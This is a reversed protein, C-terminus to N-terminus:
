PTVRRCVYRKTFKGNKIPWWPGRPDDAEHTMDSYRLVHAQAGARNDVIAPLPSAKKVKVVIPLRAQKQGPHSPRWTAPHKRNLLAVFNRRRDKREAFMANWDDFARMVHARQEKDLPAM